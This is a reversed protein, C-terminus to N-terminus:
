NKLQSFYIPDICFKSWRNNYLSSIFNYSFFPTSFSSFHVALM